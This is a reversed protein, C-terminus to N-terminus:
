RLEGLAYNLSLHFSTMPLFYSGDPFIDFAFFNNNEDLSRGIDTVNLYFAGLGAGLEIFFRQDFHLLAGYYAEVGHMTRRRIFNDKQFFSEEPFYVIESLAGTTYRFNYNAGVITSVNKGPKRLYHIGPKVRIGNSQNGYISIYVYGLESKIRWRETLGYGYNVQLASNVNALASISIGVSHNQFIIRSDSSDLKASQGFVSIHIGFFLLVGLYLLCKEKM